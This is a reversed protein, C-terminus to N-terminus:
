TQWPVILFLMSSTWRLKEAAQSLQSALSDIDVKKEENEEDEKGGSDEGIARTRTGSSFERSRLMNQISLCPKRSWRIQSRAPSSYARNSRGREKLLSFDCRSESPFSNRCMRCPGLKQADFERRSYRATVNTHCFSSRMAAYIQRKRNVWQLAQMRSLFSTHLLAMADLTNIGVFESSILAHRKPSELYSSCLTDRMGHTCGHPVTEDLSCVRWTHHKFILTTKANWFRAARSHSISRMRREQTLCLIRSVLGCPILLPVFAISSGLLRTLFSQPRDIAHVSLQLNCRSRPNSDHM